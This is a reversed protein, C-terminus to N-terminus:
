KKNSFFRSFLKRNEVRKKLNSNEEELIRKRVRCNKLKDTKLTLENSLQSNQQHLENIQNLYSNVESLKNILQNSTKERESKESALMTSCNSFDKNLRNLKKELESNRDRFNIDRNQLNLAELYWGQFDNMASKCEIVVEMLADRDFSAGRCQELAEYLRKVYRNEPSITNHKSRNLNPKIITSLVESVNGKFETRVGIFDLLSEGTEDYQSFWDEYHNIFCNSSSHYLAECTRSLWILEAFEKSVKAQKMLSYIVASPHRVALIFLPIVWLPKISDIWLPLMHSVRPDKFGWITPASAIRERLLNQIRLKYQSYCQSKSWGPPLPLLPHGNVCELFNKNLEVIDKDEFFGDPNEFHSAILNESISMGLSALIQMLLSTGARGSSLVVVINKQQNTENM